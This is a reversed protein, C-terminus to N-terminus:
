PDDDYPAQSGNLNHPPTPPEHAATSCGLNETVITRDCNKPVFNRDAIKPRLFAPPSVTGGNVVVWYYLKGGVTM